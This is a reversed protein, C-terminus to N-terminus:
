RVRLEARLPALTVPRGDVHTVTPTAEVLYRGAPLPRPSPHAVAEARWPLTLVEEGRPALTVTTVAAACGTSNRADDDGAARLALTAPATCSLTVRLPARTRNVLACRVTFTGGSRVSAPTVRLTAALGSATARPPQADGAARGGRPAAAILLAALPLAGLARSPRPRITSVPRALAGAHTLRLPGAAGM